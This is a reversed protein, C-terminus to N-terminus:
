RNGGGERGDDKGHNEPAFAYTVVENGAEDKHLPVLVLRMKQDHDLRSPDEETLRTVVRIHEELEVVGFGYPVEGGYGPPPANVSTWAWLRGTSSLEVPETNEKACWPCTESRPFHYRGCNSCRGGVLAPPDNLTFLGVKVPVSSV